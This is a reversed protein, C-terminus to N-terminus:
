GLCFVRVYVRIMVFVVCLVVYFWDCGVVSLSVLVIVVVVVAFLVLVCLMCVM